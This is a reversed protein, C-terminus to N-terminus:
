AAVRKGTKRVAVLPELLNESLFRVVPVVVGDGVLHYGENYNEPLLYSDPLGMLRAGERTSMLRSRVRKGEVVLIVQRSSGGVPTRLCGSVDDFRAEARQVKRGKENQRTRKYVTGIVRRGTRRARELKERNLPSMMRLLRETEVATHWGIGTPKEEILESFVSERKPPEPLRWWMWKRRAMESMKWFAEDVGLPHWADGARKSVLMGPVSVDERVGIIFLRPRSQPVFHVADIVVAGFRYGSRALANGIAAFDRGGHSKLTGYVNELVVVRPARGERGLSDM